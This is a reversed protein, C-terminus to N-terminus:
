KVDGNEDTEAVPSGLLDTHIFIIKKLSQKGTIETSVQADAEKGSDNTCTVTFDFNAPETRIPTEVTYTGSTMEGQYYVVEKINKNGNGSSAPKAYCKSANTYDFTFVQKEGVKITEPTYKLNSITPTPYTIETSVRADAEKGSDNTCTVTFNYNASETRVPTEVTYTGSAMKGQYYVVENTNKNGNGSSAPKAYCKSANTYDFTFVQKEGVQIKEPTYKLNSITPTPYIISTQVRAEASNSANECVVIFDFNDAQTRVGTPISYTGSTPMTSNANGVYYIDRTGKNVGKYNAPAYCKAANSYNFSFTQNEGVFVTSPAYQLQSITAQPYAIETSVRADAEKGSENTCTVTFDFNAPETRVPTEVTYTGSSMAGQYYVVEKTNKNGNGSSAPKAYCKSANTYNFSFTQKDGVMAPNPFYNINSITPEPLPAVHLNAVVTNSTGGPGSCYLSVSRGYTNNIYVDSGSIGVPVGNLACSTANTSSWIISSSEGYNISSRSWSLSATPKPAIIQTSVSANAEQGSANTCTVTFAYSTPSQRVPTQVTYTGSSMAGQYYVIERTGKNGNGSSAPKAYCKSANTYNFTFTQHNGITLPTPYYHLNSITPRPLPEVTLTASEINSTGGPGSCQISVAQDSTNYNQLINGYTGVSNGNLVCSNANSSNWYLRSSGGYQVRSPSWYVSASPQPAAIINTSVAMSDSQGSENTCTVVFNFSNPSQRVPTQVTYTGTSMAGQYYVVSGSYCKTANYYNFSFTQSNGVTVTSPSYQLGTIRPRPSDATAGM